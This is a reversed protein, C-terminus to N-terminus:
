NFIRSKIKLVYNILDDNMKFFVIITFYMISILICKVFIQIFANNFFIPLYNGIFLMGFFLLLIYVQKKEFPILKYWKWILILRGFNYFVLAFSTSFAAGSIGYYPILVTNLIYVIFIMTVTFFLDFKYRKSTIFIFGNLGFYIDVLKGVMFVLFPFIGINFDNPLLSFLDEINLWVLLFIYLGILLSISSTKVYLEGMKKMDNKKWYEAVLSSSVRFISKNPVQMASILFLITTYVGTEKLGLFSAIMMADMTLVLTIGISNAYSFLSYSILIRKFKKPISNIGRKFNFENLKILYIFLIFTPIIYSISVCIVFQQFDIWGFILICILLLIIVRSLFENLFISVWNKGLGRLYIDLIIFFVNGIGIPIIWFYYEIFLLSKEQFWKIIESQLGLLLLVFGLTSFSIIKLVTQIFNYNNKEVNRFYPFFRWVANVIGLNAFQGFLMGVSYLLNILGIEEPTLFAVFLVGKNIYGLVLGLYSIVTSLFAEKQVNGM